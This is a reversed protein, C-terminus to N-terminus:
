ARRNGTNLCHLFAFESKEEDSASRYYAWAKDSLVREAWDEFDQLLLLNQAPLMSERAAQREEEEATL